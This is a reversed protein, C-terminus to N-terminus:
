RDRRRDGALPTTPRLALQNFFSDSAVLWSDILSVSTTWTVWPARLPVRAPDVQPLQRHIGAHQLHASRSCLSGNSLRTPMPSSALLDCTRLCTTWIAYSGTRPSGRRGMTM